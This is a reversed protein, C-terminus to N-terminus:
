TSASNPRCNYTSPLLPSAKTYWAGGSPNSEGITSLLGQSLTTVQECLFVPQQIGNNVWILVLSVAHPTVVIYAFLVEDMEPNSIIPPHSLYEKLQQFAM